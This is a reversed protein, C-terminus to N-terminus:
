VAKPAVPAQSTGPFSYATEMEQSGSVAILPPVHGDVRDVNYREEHGDYLQMLESVDISDLDSPTPASDQENLLSPISAAFLEIDEQTLDVEVPQGIGLVEYGDFNEADGSIGDM